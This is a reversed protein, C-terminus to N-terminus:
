LPVVVTRGDQEKLRGARQSPDHQFLLIWNEKLAQGLLGRKSELTHVPFLDYAMIWPLPVHSRTPILDGFYVAKQGESELTVVQHGRTHGGSCLVKLGPEVDYEGEVTEVVKADDLPAFNEELYSARNREHPSQADEWEAKQVLVKAKPFQPAVRGDPGRETDGGAHDFHLHTNIVLQIDTTKLGLEDLQHVLPTKREVCYTKIFKPNADYKSSLGTDVLIHRGKPTKILLCGLALEVRNKDDPPAAREWLTRPVVGYMAGGDLRFTGDTLLHVEFAGVRLPPPPPM